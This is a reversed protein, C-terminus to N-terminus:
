QVSNRVIFGVNTIVAVFRTIVFSFIEAPTSSKKIIRGGLQAISEHTQCRQASIHAGGHVKQALWRQCPRRM